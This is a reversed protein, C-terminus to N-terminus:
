NDDSLSPHTGNMISQLSPSINQHPPPRSSRVALRGDNESMGSNKSPKGGGLFKKQPAPAAPAHVRNGPAAGQVGFSPFSNGGGGSQAASERLRTAFTDRWNEHDELVAVDSQVIVYAFLELIPTLYAKAEEFSKAEKFKDIYNYIDCRNGAM